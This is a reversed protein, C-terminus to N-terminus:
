TNRIQLLKNMQTELDKLKTFLYENHGIEESIVEIKANNKTVHINTIQFEKSNKSKKKPSRADSNTYNKIM